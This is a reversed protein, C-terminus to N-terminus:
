GYDRIQNFDAAEKAHTYKMNTNYLLNVFFPKKLKLWWLLWLERLPSEKKRKKKKLEKKVSLTGFGRERSTYKGKACRHTLLDVYWIMFPMICLLIYIVQLHFLFILLRSYLLLHLACYEEGQHLWTFPHSAPSSAPVLFFDFWGCSCMTDNYM